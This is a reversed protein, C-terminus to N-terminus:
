RSGRTATSEVPSSNASSPVKGSSLRPNVQTLSQGVAWPQRWTPTMKKQTVLGTLFTKIFNQKYKQILDGPCITSEFRGKSQAM